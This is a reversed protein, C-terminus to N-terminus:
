ENGSWWHEPKLRGWAPGVRAQQANVEFWKHRVVCEVSGDFLLQCTAVWHADNVDWAITFKSPDSPDAVASYIRIAPLPRPGMRWNAYGTGVLSWRNPVDHTFFGTPCSVGVIQVDTRSQGIGVAATVLVLRDGSNRARRVGAFVIPLGTGGKVKATLTSLDALADFSRNSFVVPPPGSSYVMAPLTLPHQRFHRVYWARRLYHFADPVYPQLILIAILLGGAIFWWHFRRRRHIPVPQGYELSRGVVEPPLPPPSSQTPPASEVDCL